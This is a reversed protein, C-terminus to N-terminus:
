KPTFETDLTRMIIVYVSSIYFTHLHILSFKISVHLRQVLDNIRIGLIPNFNKSNTEKWNRTPHIFLSPTSPLAQVSTRSGAYLNM